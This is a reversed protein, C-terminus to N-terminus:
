ASDWTTQNDGSSIIVSDTPCGVTRCIRCKREDGAARLREAVAQAYVRPVVADENGRDGVLEHLRRARADLPPCRCRAATSM